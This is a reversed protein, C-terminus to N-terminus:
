YEVIRSGDEDETIHLTIRNEPLISTASDAWEVAVISNDLSLSDALNDLMIGPDDLRYFDYHILIGNKGFPYERSITFSPSSVPEMIGLGRAFGRMFTTKGAGVDGVLELCAPAKLSRAFKEGFALMESESKIKEKPM